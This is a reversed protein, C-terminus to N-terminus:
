LKFKSISASCVKLRAAIAPSKLGAAFLSQILSRREAAVGMMVERAKEHQAKLVDLRCFADDHISQSMLREM